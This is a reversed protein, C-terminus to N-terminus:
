FRGKFYAEDRAHQGLTSEQHEAILGNELYFMEVGNKKAWTSVNVDENHADEFAVEKFMHTPMVRAFGGVHNVKRLTFYIDLRESYVVEHGHGQPGGLNNILGVPFPSFIANPKLSAIEEVNEFFGESVVEADEDLKIMLPNTLFPKSHEMVYGISKREPLEHIETHFMTAIHNQVGNSVLHMTIGNYDNCTSEISYLLRGLYRSRGCSVTLIDIM